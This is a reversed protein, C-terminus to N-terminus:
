RRAVRSSGGHAFREIVVAAAPRQGSPLAAADDGAVFTEGIFQCDSPEKSPRYKPGGGPAAAPPMVDRSQGQKEDGCTSQDEHEANPRLASVRM